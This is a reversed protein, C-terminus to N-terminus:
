YRYQYTLELDGRQIAESISDAAMNPSVHDTDYDMKVQGTVEFSDLDEPLDRPDQVTNPGGLETDATANTITYSHIASSALIGELHRIAYLKANFNSKGVAGLTATHIGGDRNVDVARVNTLEDVLECEGGCTFEITVTRIVSENSTSTDHFQM